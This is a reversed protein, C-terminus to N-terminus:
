LSGHLQNNARSCESVLFLWDGCSVSRQIEDTDFQRREFLPLTHHMTDVKILLKEAIEYFLVVDIASAKGERNQLSLPTHLEKGEREVLEGADIYMTKMTIQVTM